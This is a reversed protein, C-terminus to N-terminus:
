NVQRRLETILRELDDPLPATFEVREGTRPHCFALSRAHLAPRGLAKLAARIRPQQIGKWQPGGYRDDGVCPHHIHALHVRVQHTRGTEPRVVVRSVEPFDEARVWRTVARRPRDTRPSIRTRDDRDRGLPVDITGEPADPRGYVLADYEKEVTREAFQRALKRHAEDTRAVVLVGSTGKDLRHVIGPRVPGGVSSLREGYRHLLGNVLTDDPHGPGPHVVRGPEKNVIALRDDEYLIELPIPRAVLRPGEDPEPLRIRVRQATLAPRSSKDVIDGDARVRGSDICRQIKSRSLEPLLEALAKDIREGDLEEPIEVDRVRAAPDSRESM